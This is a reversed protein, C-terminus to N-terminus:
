SFMPEPALTSRDPLREGHRELPEWLVTQREEGPECPVVFAVPEFRMAGDPVILDHRRHQGPAGLQAFLQAVDHRAEDEHRAHAAAEVAQVAVDAERAVLAGVLRVNRRKEPFAAVLM